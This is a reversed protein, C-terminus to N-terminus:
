KKVATKTGTFKVNSVDGQAPSPVMVHDPQFTYQQKSVKVVYTSASRNLGKLIFHGKMDSKASLTGATTVLAGFIPAGDNDNLDGEVKFPPSSMPQNPATKGSKQPKPQQAFGIASLLMTAALVLFVRRIM